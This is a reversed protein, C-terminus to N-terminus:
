FKRTFSFLDADSDENGTLANRLIQAALMSFTIGNGGYGLVAYCNKMRPVPGISPSGTTSNGFFGTWRYDARPDVWPMLKHLKAELAAIKEPMLADRKEDDDIEEDEGGCIIRGDPGPRMYLYPEAAEWIFCGSNWIKGPQPRTAMAWTSIIEHKKRPVGVAIEYGTAFVLHRASIVAGNALDVRVGTAQPEVHMVEIHAYLSARRSLAANLFGAALRLPDASLNGYSMLAARGAIGFRQEVDAKSLWRTELGIARRADAEDQLRAASLVNGDLYLTDRDQCEAEIGLVRARDRLSSVALSSRSWMREARERGIAQTLEVLPKDLEHQILATTASTSGDLPGRRDIIAVDLGAETLADAIMAGSIGAGIIVVDRRPQRHPLDHAKISPKRRARWIPFGSRLDKKHSASM